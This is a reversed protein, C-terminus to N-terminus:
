WRSDGVALDPLDFAFRLALDFSVVDSEDGDFRRVSGADAVRPSNAFPRLTVRAPAM